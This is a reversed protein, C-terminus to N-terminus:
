QSKRGVRQGGFIRKVGQVDLEVGNLADVRTAVVVHRADLFQDGRGAVLEISDLLELAGCSGREDDAFLGRWVRRRLHGRLWRRPRSGVVALIAVTVLLAM